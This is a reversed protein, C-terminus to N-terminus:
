YSFSYLNCNYMYFQIYYNDSYIQENHNWIVEYNYYNGYMNCTDYIIQGNINLLKIILYGENFTKYNIILKNNLHILNTKIFGNGNCIIKQIRNKEFSHCSINQNGSKTIDNHTYIYMKENDPSLVISNINMNDNNNVEFLEKTLIDFHIGDSSVMLTSNNKDDYNIGGITPIGLFYNTNEYKFIGPTYIMLHNHNLIDINNCKIFHNFDKTKSFQVFRQKYKNDRIYIYYYDDEENYLISNHTDFHNEHTWGPILHSVNLIQKIYIWDIGNNSKFLHLGNNYLGTGSIGLYQNNKKDYFPYFNHCFLDHKIINNDSSNNYEIINYNKKEFHLGDSSIALCIYEHNALEPTSYYIKNVYDQYYNYPCSKYYLKYENNVFLITFYGNTREYDKDLYLVIKEFKPKIIEFYINDSKEIIINRNLFPEIKM